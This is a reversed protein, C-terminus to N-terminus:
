YIVTVHSYFTLGLIYSDYTFLINVRIYLLVFLRLVFFEVITFLISCLIKLRRTVSTTMLGNVSLTNRQFYCCCFCMSHVTSSLM